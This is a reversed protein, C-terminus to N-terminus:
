KRCRVCSVNSCNLGYKFQSVQATLTQVVFLRIKDHDAVLHQNIVLTLTFDLSILSCESTYLNNSYIHRHTSATRSATQCQENSHLSELENNSDTVQEAESILKRRNM